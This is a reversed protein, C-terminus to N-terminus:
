SDKIAYIGKLNRFAGKYDMGYGFLFRDEVEVGIYNPTLNIKRNHLKNIVTATYVKNAGQQEFWEIIAKLTHGQDFIDDIILIDRDKIDTQPYSLWKLSTGETEMGYRTAHVYDLELPFSLRELIGATPILGGNMVCIVLPFTDQLDKTIQEGMKDLASDIQKESVLCDAQELITNLDNIKNIM